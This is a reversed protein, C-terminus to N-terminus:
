GARYKRNKGRTVEGTLALAELHREVLPKSAGAFAAAAEAVTLSRTTLLAKLAGLQEMVTRPWPIPAGAEESEVEDTELELEAPVVLDKGFRPIQYEPRLWRVKGAKEEAVREDHLKVLRELIEEKEMPWPWGYAEAVLADLEDHLDKLVGCAGLEHITREPPTLAEGSRLKEVVNYMRTMTVRQDRALASKRHADLSEAITGIQTRLGPSPDPFPFSDFCVGKNYRPKDELAGGAELAWRVHIASSLVGLVFPEGTAIAILMNDPTVDSGLFQFFRRKATEVTAIYRTLGHLAARLERRPEGFRWWYRRYSERSNADRKPKVRTRVVDFAQSAARAEAEDCLGFDILRVERPRDTLDKGNRYERVFSAESPSSLLRTAEAKSLIFGAGHLKVGPSSLGENAVLPKESSSVLDADVSLDSNLRRATRVALVAPVIGGRVYRVQDVEVLRAAPPDLEFVVMAVRVEAGTQGDCWAHDPIAWSPRVGDVEALKLVVRNQRQTLSQTTVFGARAATRRKLADAAKAVWYMVYDISDPLTSYTARLADVYGDGFEERQRAQGLYPPNGVIFDAKPWQAQRPHLYQMYQLKAKPDPVLEGTIKSAIRPTPDPRDRSPDHRIADWDLVADRCEITKTDELIPEPYQVHQYQKWFQHYGIWLTLEAIERAWPKVEIGHFQRPHVEFLRFDADGGKRLDNELNKVELEIRKLLHLTVYLFNGSGCAPDLIQLGCLWEHYDQVAKLATKRDKEKGSEQLQVVEAQVLNWRERVPEEVTPRVVREVFERPTFEAGLRHREVPDLARVLLTGFISPEVDQWEANAALLLLAQDDLTLPLAKSDHFFHGNFRALESKGFPEGKDMAKWLREMTKPLKDLPVQAILDRFTEAPLLDVDEAFMTFVVRILFRAVAEQPHGRAELSAALQALREAIQKTVQASRASTDRAAPNEWIDRLLALDDPRDGLTPLDIRRAANFGGYEGSWRDWVLLTKGIDLVLIYPPRDGPLKQAYNWVQVFARRLRRDESDEGAFSKAELAFHGSKYCDIFNTTERLETPDIAKLPFDFSYHPTVETAPRPPEVGLATCFETIYIHANSREAPRAKAWRAALAHLPTAPPM